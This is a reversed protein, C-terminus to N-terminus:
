ANCNGVYRKELEKLLGKIAISWCRPCWYKGGGAYVNCVAEVTKAQAETPIPPLTFSVIQTTWVHSDNPVKDKGCVFCTDGTLSM